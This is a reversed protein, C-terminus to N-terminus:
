NQHQSSIDCLGVFVPVAALCNHLEAAMCLSAFLSWGGVGIGDIGTLARIYREDELM